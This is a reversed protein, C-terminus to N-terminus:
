HWPWLRSLLSSRKPTVPKGERLRAQEEVYRLARRYTQGSETAMPHESTLTFRELVHKGALVLVRQGVQMWPTMDCTNDTKELYAPAQAARGKNMREVRLMSRTTRGYLSDHESRRVVRAVFVVDAQRYDLALKRDFAIRPAVQVTEVPM